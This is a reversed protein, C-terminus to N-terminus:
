FFSEPVFVIDGAVLPIDQEKKGKKTIDSVRVPIAEQQEGQTRIVRTGNESAVKTFGGAMAIAEKTWGRLTGILAFFVVMVWFLTELNIM